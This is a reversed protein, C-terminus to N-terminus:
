ASRKQGLMRGLMATQVIQLITIAGVSYATIGAGKLAVEKLHNALKM